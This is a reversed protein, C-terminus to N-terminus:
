KLVELSIDLAKVSHTLAGTAIYDVKTKAYKELNTLNIGGSAELKINEKRLNKRIKIAEKIQKPTMNDLLVVDVNEKLAEIFENFNTVEVEVLKNAQKAYAVANRISGAMAIHNEKILVADALDRRHLTGGGVLVAYKELDRLNPTTKRTDRIKTKKAIKVFKNTMTAIGSLRQLFNLAVREGSIIARASGTIEAIFTGKKVFDGEEVLKKFVIKKDMLKFATKAIDLGAIIGSDKTIMTAKACINKPVTLNTTIDNYAKDEKLAILIQKM